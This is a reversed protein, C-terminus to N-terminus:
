ELGQIDILGAQKDTLLGIKQFELYLERSAWADTAAYSIQAPSLTAAAWNSTRTGKAIRFGMFIGALNRLGTQPIGHRRAILGMDFVSAPEIPYLQRLQRLDHALAVGAKIIDPSALFEAVEAACDVRKLQFLYVAGATAVQVLSPLYSEGKSFAPRTETDLGLVQEQRIDAMAQELAEPSAVLHVEGEYRRIPLAAVEERSIAGPLTTQLAISSL